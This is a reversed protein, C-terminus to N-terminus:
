GYNGGADTGASQRMTYRILGTWGGADGRTMGLRADAAEYVRSSSGYGAEYIADTIPAKGKKPERVKSKFRELRAEKAYQGPSVGLVRKFGRLITLRGVGTAKAVDALRTREEAHEKL